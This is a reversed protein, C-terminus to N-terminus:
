FNDANNNNSQINLGYDIRNYQSTTPVHCSLMLDNGGHHSGEEQNEADETTNDKWRRGDEKDLMEASSRFNNVVRGM